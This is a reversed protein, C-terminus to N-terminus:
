NGNNLIKEALLAGGSCVMYGRAEVFSAYDASNGVILVDEEEDVKHYNSRRLNGTRNQYDGNEVNYEDAAQGAEEMAKHVEGRMQNFFDNVANDFVQTSNPM